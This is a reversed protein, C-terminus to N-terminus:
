PRSAEPLRGGCRQRAQGAARHGNPPSLSSASATSPARPAPAGGSSTAATSSSSRPSRSSSPATASPSRTRSAPRSSSTPAAPDPRRWTSSRPLRRRARRRQRHGARAAGRIRLHTRRPGDVTAELDARLRPHHHAARRGRRHAGVDRRSRDGVRGAARRPPGPRARRARPRARRPRRARRPGRRRNEEEDVVVLDPGLDAIAAVDPDKTGGVHHLSPQECFRTCAVPQIGWALLTETVSPVLSVVRPTM